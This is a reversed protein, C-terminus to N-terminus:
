EMKALARALNALFLARDTDDMEVTEIGALAQAISEKAGKIDGVEAQATSIVVLMATRADGEFAETALVEAISEKAGEIDGM